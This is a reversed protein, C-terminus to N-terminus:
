ISNERCIKSFDEFMLNMLVGDLPLRNTGHPSASLRVSPCVSMFFSIMMMMMMMMFMWPQAMQGTEDGSNCNSEGDNRGEGL